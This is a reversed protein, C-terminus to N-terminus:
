CHVPYSAINCLDDRQMIPLDEKYYLCVGGRPDENAKPYDARFQEPAFDSIEIKDNSVDYNFWSECVGFSFHFDSNAQLIEILTIKSGTRELM